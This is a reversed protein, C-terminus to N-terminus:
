VDGILAVLDNVRAEETGLIIAMSEESVKDFGQGAKIYMALALAPTDESLDLIGAAEMKVYIKEAVPAIIEGLAEDIFSFRAVVTGYARIFQTHCKRGIKLKKFRARFMIDSIVIGYAEDTNRESLDILADTKVKNALRRELLYDRVIDYEGIKVAISLAADQLDTRDEMYEGDFSWLIANLIDTEKYIERARTKSMKTFSQILSMYENAMDDPLGFAYEMHFYKRTRVAQYIVSKTYLASVSVPFVELMLNIADLAERGMKANFAAVARFFLVNFHYTDLECVMRTFCEYAEKAMGTECYITAIKYMEERNDTRYDAFKTRAIDRAKDPQKRELYVNALNIYALISDPDKQLARRCEEEAADYNGMILHCTAINMRSSEYLKNGEPIKDFTKIAAATDDNMAQVVGRDFEDSFDAIEPPYVFKLPGSSAREELFDRVDDMSDDYEGDGNSLYMGYYYSCMRRDGLNMYCISLGKYCEAPDDEDEYDLSKFINHIAKDHLGLEDYIEAYLFYSVEDNGNLAANKNLISLAETYRGEDFLSDATALLRDGSYDIKFIKKM